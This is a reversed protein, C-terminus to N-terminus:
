RSHNMIDLSDFAVSSSVSALEEVFSVMYANQLLCQKILVFLSVAYLIGTTDLMETASVDTSHTWYVLLDTMQLPVSM